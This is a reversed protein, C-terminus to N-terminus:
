MASREDAELLPKSKSLILKEVRSDSLFEDWFDSVKSEDLTNIFSKGNARTKLGSKFIMVTPQWSICINGSLATTPWARVLTALIRRGLNSRFQSLTILMVTYTVIISIIKRKQTPNFWSYLRCFTTHSISSKGANRCRPMMEQGLEVVNVTISEALLWDSCETSWVRRKSWPWSRYRSSQFAM